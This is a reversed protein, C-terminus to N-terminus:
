RGREVGPTLSLLCTMQEDQLEALHHEVLDRCIEHSEMLDNELCLAIETFGASLCTCLIDRMIVGHGCDCFDDRRGAGVFLAWNSRLKGNNNVILHEGCRGELQQQLLMRTVPASLRWDLLAQPGRLPRQDCFVLAAVIDAEIQDAPLSCLRVRNM